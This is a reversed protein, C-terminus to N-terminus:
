QPAPLVGVLTEIERGLAFTMGDGEAPGVIEMGVPLGSATLGVPVSLCPLGAGSGFGSNRIFTTFTPVQRGNLEVTV